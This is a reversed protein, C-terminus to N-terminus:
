QSQQYNNWVSPMLPSHRHYCVSADHGQKSCIQCQVKFRGGFRGGRGRNFTRGGCFGGRNETFNTMSGFQSANTSDSNVQSLSQSAPPMVQAVNVSLPETLITKKARDLKAEHSHHM